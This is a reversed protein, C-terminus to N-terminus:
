AKTVKCRTLVTQKVDKYTAHEKVTGTITFTEANHEEVNHWNMKKDGDIYAYDNGTTEEYWGIPSNTSWKYVNGAEDKMLHMYQIGYQSEWYFSVSLTAKVTIRKGTEGQWQSADAEAKHADYKKNEILAQRHAEDIEKRLWEARRKESEKRYREQAKAENEPTLEKETWSYIGTGDCDFCIGDAYYAFRSIRGTGGCKDCTDSYRWLKNGNKYAKVLEKSMM